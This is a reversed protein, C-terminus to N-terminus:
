SKERGGSKRRPGKPGAKLTGKLKRIERVQTPTWLRVAKGGILQVRPASIKATKIWFQLTPRHVGAAKAAEYTNLLKRKMPRAQVVDRQSWDVILTSDGAM